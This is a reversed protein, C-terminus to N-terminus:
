GNTHETWEIVLGDDAITADLADVQATAAARSTNSLHSLYLQGVKIENRHAKLDEVSLHGWYHASVNSCECVFIDAGSVFDALADQWGTDGSFALDQSKTKIRLSAAIAISDHRARLTTVERGLVNMEGPVPWHTFELPFGVGRQIVSPYTSNWLQHLRDRM